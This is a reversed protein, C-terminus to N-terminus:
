CPLLCLFLNPYKKSKESSMRGEEGEEEKLRMRGRETENKRERADM